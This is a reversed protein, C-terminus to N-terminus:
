SIGIPLHFDPVPLSLGTVTNIGSVIMGSYKFVGLISLNVVCSIVVGLVAKKEGKHKDIFRGNFYDFISSFILLCVWVPEGWAYFFLSFIILVINKIKTKPAAFYCILFLPLFVFLFFIDSFVM